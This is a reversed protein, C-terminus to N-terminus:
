EQDSLPKAEVEAPEPQDEYEHLIGRIANHWPSENEVESLSSGSANEANRPARALM